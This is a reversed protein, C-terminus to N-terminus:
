KFKFISYQKSLFALVRVHCSKKKESSLNPDRAGYNLKSPRSFTPEVQPSIDVAINKPSIRLKQLTLICRTRLPPCGVIFSYIVGEPYLIVSAILNSLVLM